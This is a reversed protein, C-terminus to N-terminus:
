SQITDATTGNDENNVDEFLWVSKICLLGNSYYKWTYKTQRIAWAISIRRNSTNVVSIRERFLRCQSLFSLACDCIKMKKHICFHAHTRTNTGHYLTYFFPPFNLRFNTKTMRCFDRFHWCSFHIARIIAVIWESSMAIIFSPRIGGCECIRKSEGKRSLKSSM